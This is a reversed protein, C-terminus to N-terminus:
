SKNTPEHRHNEACQHEDSSAELRDIREDDAGQVNGHVRGKDCQYDVEDQSDDESRDELDNTGPASLIHGPRGIVVLFTYWYPCGLWGRFDQTLPTDFLFLPALCRVRMEKQDM